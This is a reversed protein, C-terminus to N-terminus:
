PLVPRHFDASSRASDWSGSAIVRRLGGFSSPGTDLGGIYTGGVWISPFSSVGTKNRLSSRLDPKDSVSVVGFGLKSRSKEQHLAEIALKCFPCGELVFVTIM